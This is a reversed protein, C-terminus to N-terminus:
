MGEANGKRNYWLQVIRRTFLIRSPLNTMFICLSLAHRVYYTRPYGPLGQSGERGPQQAQAREDPPPATYVMPWSLCGM